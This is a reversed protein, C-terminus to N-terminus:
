QIRFKFHKDGIKIIVVGSYDISVSSASGNYLLIGDASYATWTGSYGTVTIENGHAKVNVDSVSPDNIAADDTFIVQLTTAQYLPPTTYHGLANIQDTVPAGDLTLSHLNWGEDPRLQLTIQSGYREQTTVSGAPLLVTLTPRIGPKDDEDVDGFRSWPNEARYAQRSDTPITLTASQYVADDFIYTGCKPPCSAACVVNIIAPCGDFAQMGITELSSGLMVDRLSICSYFAKRGIASVSEPIVISTLDACGSFADDAVATVRLMTNGYMVEAPIAMDGAAEPSAVVQCQGEDETLEFNLERLSFDQASGSYATAAALILTLYNTFNTKMIQYNSMYFSLVCRLSMGAWSSRFLINQRSLNVFNLKNQSNSPM